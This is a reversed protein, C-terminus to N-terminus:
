GDSSDRLRAIFRELSASLSNSEPRLLYTTIVASDMALPRIVVDPWQCVPIKTATMFGVGYGAGVLTLMMDLSSVEEVINLKHELVQLLRGLERCYGECAHPDCLVLPHGRLEHLPVKKHVLLAHRAPVAIVLPDRWIPEAVIDDGVEATHAFGITFDGSRLGRLQEALPVESLRIEIEPEEARCRVLFASLRPDIAGDSVAIRLSGRLGSAVAKANERAQELVTLLRRIDQLFAAGAATLVTGRRNRDFLVVGLEDELEKIARSLPPQEIHLREAARTFHLEEALVIFCRLHRLEM